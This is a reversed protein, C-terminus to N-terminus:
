VVRDIEGGGIVYDGDYFVASQGPSVPEYSDKLMVKAESDNLLEVSANLERCSSRIKIIAPFSMDPKEVAVWNIDKVIFSAINIEKKTGVVVTNTKADLRIVYLPEPFAIGLGRRQGPTYNWIGMHRGVVKGSTLIIDGDAEQIDILERYNGSYFDQSEEKDSVAIGRERAMGRVIEKTLGGIPFIVMSLQKQSLRYLFYSQDKKRDAAKKLVHRGTLSDFEIRAYHGTAFKDFLIGSSVATQLLADFKIKYNCVICPNPTRASMYENKFYNIVTKNFDKSCDFVYFPIGISDCIKKAETQEQREEPGYCSHKKREGCKLSDDWISMSIGIVDNGQEKLLLAAVSSDVGGSMGVAVKM